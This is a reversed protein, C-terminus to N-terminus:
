ARTVTIGSKERDWTDATCGEDRLQYKLVRGVPNKPLESRFEIYRPLAFYPLRDTSWGFLEEPDLAAEPKVVATVKVDDEGLDSFVAHVAVESLQPHQMFAAEVEFSSINEGRRRLYDKKRDVFFFFGDEDFKGFDGTHFWLNRMQALTAEPRRWYGEFMVHPALPRCVVEGVQGPPVEHDNDDFIRLDLWEHRRGSSGPSATVGPGLVTATAAESQGYMASGASEVGFRDKWLQQLPPPFPVGLAIRLQGKCRSSEPTDPAQALLPIMSAMVLVCRAGTREVEHWFRSLSFTPAISITGALHITELVVSLAALHFLPLPAFLPEDPRRESAMNMVRGVHLLYHHSMMCGKSPGTTGATYLLAALDSPESRVAPVEGEEVRAEHLPRICWPLPTDTDPAAGRYLVTELFPFRAAVAAFRSLLHGETVVVRPDADAVQHALFEGKYATNVPVWVAGLRNAALWVTILDPNNDLMSVIRDGPGVGLAAFGRALRNVEHDLESYTLQVGSFDLFVQDPARAVARAFVTDVDDDPRIQVTM